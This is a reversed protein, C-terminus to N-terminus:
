NQKSLRTSMVDKIALGNGKKLEFFKILIEQGKREGYYGGVYKHSVPFEFYMEKNYLFFRTVWIM